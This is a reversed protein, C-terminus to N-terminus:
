IFLRTKFIKKLCLLVLFMCDHIHMAYFTLNLKIKINLRKLVIHIYNM